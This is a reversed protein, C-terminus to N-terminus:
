EILAAGYSSLLDALAEKDLEVSIVGSSVPALDGPSFYFTLSSRTMYWRSNLLDAIRESQRDYLGATGTQEVADKVRGALTEGASENLLASLLIESGARLDINCFRAYSVTRGESTTENYFYTLSAASSTFYNLSFRVTVSPVALMQKGADIDAEYKQRLSEIESRIEEEIADLRGTLTEQLSDNGTITAVPLRLSVSLVKENAETMVDYQELKEGIGGTPTPTLIEHDGGLTTTVSTVATTVASTATTQKPEKQPACAALLLTLLLGACVIRGIRMDVVVRWIPTIPEFASFNGVAQGIKDM